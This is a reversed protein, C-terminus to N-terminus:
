RNALSDAPPVRVARWAPLLAAVIGTIALAIALSPVLQARATGNM